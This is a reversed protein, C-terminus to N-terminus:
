GAVKSFVVEHWKQNAQGSPLDYKSGVFKNVHHFPHTGSRGVLFIIPITGPNLVNMSVFKTALFM